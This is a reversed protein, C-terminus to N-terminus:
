LMNYHCFQWGFKQFVRKPHRMILELKVWCNISKIVNKILGQLWYLPGVIEWIKRDKRIDWVIHKRRESISNKFIMILQIWPYLRFAFADSFMESVPKAVSFHLYEEWKSPIIQQKSILLISEQYPIVWLVTKIGMDKEPLLLARRVDHCSGWTEWLKITYCNNSSKGWIM